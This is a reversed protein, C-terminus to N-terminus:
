EVELFSVPGEVGSQNRVKMEIRNRGPHLEWTFARASEKWPQGDAKVLYCSFYPTFTGMQISLTNPRGALTADYRVQNITWKLDSERATFNRYQWQRPSIGDEWRWYESWDWHTGQTKPQPFQHAFFNNRPVYNVWMWRTPVTYRGDAYHREFEKPPMGAALSTGYSIALDDSPLRKKPANELTAPKDGYYTKEILNHVELMSMPVQTKSDLYHWNQNVDMLIWKRHENSWIECVEHGGGDFAGPNSGFVFRAQYGFSLACQMLTVAYQVCFGCKRSLIEGADWAPYNVEPPNYKWQHAVWNRLRVFKETETTAGAIVEDLKYKQRLAVLSPHLPYEYEFPMSTYRIEENHFSVVKLAKAWAPMATNRVTAEVMVSRLLPTKLPDNSFLTAKWQVYRNEVPVAGEGTEAPQWDNWLAPEYVPGRGTRVLLEVRTGEPTEANAKLSISQISAPTLLPRRTEGDPGPESGLDIVPSIFNGQPLYQVLHLRVMYEGGIPQWTEGGDASKFSRRPRDKRDPANRLIDEPLAIKIHPHNVGGAGAGGGSSYLVVENDGAKLLSVPVDQFLSKDATELTQGNIQVHVDEPVYLHAEKSSLRDIHLIKKIRTNETFETTPAKDTQMWSADSGIGPGDDEVLVRDYLSVASRDQMKVGWAGQGQEFADAAQITFRYRLTEVESARGRSLSTMGLVTLVVFVHRLSDWECEIHTETRTGPRKM